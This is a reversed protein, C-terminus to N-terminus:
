GYQKSYGVWQLTLEPHEDAAMMEAIEHSSKQRYADAEAGAIDDPKVAVWGGNDREVLGENKYGSLIPGIQQAKLGTSIALDKTSMPREANQSATLVREKFSTM